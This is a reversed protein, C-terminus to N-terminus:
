RHIGVLEEWLLSKDSNSNPGYVSAFACLFNDEVNRFSCAMTYDRIFEELKM